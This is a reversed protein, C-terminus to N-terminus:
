IRKFIIEDVAKYGFYISIKEMMVDKLHTIELMYKTSVELYLTTKGNKSSAVKLYKIKSSIDAPFIKQFSTLFVTEIKNKGAFHPKVLEAILSGLSNEFNKKKNSIWEERDAM